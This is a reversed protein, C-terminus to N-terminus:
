EYNEFQVHLIDIARKFKELRFKEIVDLEFAIACQDVGLNQYLEFFLARFNDLATDMMVGPQRAFLGSALQFYNEFGRLFNEGVPAVQRLMHMRYETVHANQAHSKLRMSLIPMFPNVSHGFFSFVFCVCEFAAQGPGTSTCPIEGTVVCGCEM